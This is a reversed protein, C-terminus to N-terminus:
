TLSNLCCEISDEANHACFTTLQADGLLVPLCLRPSPLTRKFTLWRSSVSRKSSQSCSQCWSENWIRHYASLESLSAMDCSLFPPCM